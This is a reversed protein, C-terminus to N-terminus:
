GNKLNDKLIEVYEDIHDNAAPKLFERKEMGRTTYFNGDSGKYVWPTKRGGSYHIGTGCEVYPAYNVNSGITVTKDGSDVIHTISNRLNGTDVPCKEKAYGECKIGIAELGADTAKKILAIIKDSNDVKVQISM